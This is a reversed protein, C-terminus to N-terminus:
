KIVEIKGNVVVQRTKLLYLYMGSEMGSLDIRLSSETGSSHLTQLIRGNLDFLYFDWPGMHDPPLDIICFDRAPHPYLHYQEEAKRLTNVLPDFRITHTSSEMGSKDIFSYVFTSASIFPEQPSFSMDSPSYTKGEEVPEGDLLIKGPGSFEKVAIAAMAHLDPDWYYDQTSAFELLQTKHNHFVTDRGSPPQFNYMSHNPLGPSGFITESLEWNSGINTDDVIQKLELSFGKEPLVPWEQGSMLDVSKKIEGDGSRLKLVSETDFEQSLNGFCDISVPFVEDFSDRDECLVFRQGPYLVMDGSFTFLVQDNDGTLYWGDMQLSDSGYYYFEIWDGADYDEQNNTYVECLQIPFSHDSPLFYAVLDLSDNLLFDYSEEHSQFPMWQDLEFGPIATSQLRYNLDPFFKGDLPEDSIDLGSFSVVGAGPPEIRISVPVPDQLGFFDQIHNLVFEPRHKLYDDVIGIANNWDSISRSWHSAHIMMDEEYLRKMSDLVPKTKEYSFSTSILQTFRKIFHEKYGQNKLLNRILINHYGNAWARDSKTLSWHLTNWDVHGYISYVLGLGHDTDWYMWQWKGNDPKWFKINNSLWDYNGVFVETLWYDTFNELDVQEKVTNFNEDLSLDATTDVFSLLSAWDDYSGEIIHRNGYYGFELEIFDYNDTIGTHSEIYYRDLRERLNFLGHYSGNLFVNVPKSESIMPKRNSLRGLTHIMPDRFHTNTAAKNVNDNGSNRLVLRKFSDPGKEDFFPYDFWSDGYRTRAFLRLSHPKAQRPAHLQIGAGAKFQTEGSEMYELHAAAELTSNNASIIGSGGYLAEPEAVLSVVPNDYNQDDMLISVTLVPSDMAGEKTVKARIITTGTIEVPAQYFLDSTDPTSCDSTYYINADTIESYLALFVPASYFGGKLNSSPAPLISGVGPVNNPEGPTSVAFYNWTLGADPYRGYSVNTTQEGFYRQDILSGDGSYISLYEGGASLKFSAHNYGEEPEGDAWILLHEDPALVALTDINWKYPEAPDDSFYLQNLSVPDDGYNYIEFWDDDDGYDDLVAGSNSAMFENIILTNVSDVTSELTIDSTSKLLAEEWALTDTIAITDVLFNQALLGAPLSFLFIALTAARM